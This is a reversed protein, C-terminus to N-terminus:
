IKSLIDNKILDMSDKKQFTNKESPSNLYSSHLGGCAHKELSTPSVKSSKHTSIAAELSFKYGQTFKELLKALSKSMKLYKKFIKV